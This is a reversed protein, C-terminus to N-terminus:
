SHDGTHAVIGTLREIEIRLRHFNAAATTMELRADLLSKQADVLELLSFRGGRFGQEYAQSALEAQPIIRERLSDFATRAHLMEQYVDFLATYLELYHTRYRLPERELLLRSEEMLPAARRKSALPMSASLVLAGDKSQNFYRAGVSLEVDPMSQRNAFQVRSQSLREDNELRLLDPNKSLEQALHEFPPSSPLQLLEGQATDFHPQTDGWSAALQLRAVALEHEAHEREIEARAVEINAKHLDAVHSRGSAVRESVIEHIRSQTAFRDNAIHLRQQDLLVEIFRQAAQALIHRKGIEHEARVIDAEHRAVDERAATKNGLELVKMMSLTMEMDDAARYAGSGALNAIEWKTELPTGRRAQAVRMDAAGADLAQSRLLPHNAMVLDLTQKLTIFKSPTETAIAGAPAALALLLLFRYSRM